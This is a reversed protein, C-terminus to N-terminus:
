GETSLHPGDESDVVLGDRIRVVRRAEAVIRPDHTSFVFTTGDEANIRKMLEIIRAGTESDLNATPEDALVIVPRTV